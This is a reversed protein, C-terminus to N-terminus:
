TSTTVDVKVDHPIDKAFANWKSKTAVTELLGGNRVGVATGVRPRSGQRPADQHRQRSLLRHASGQRDSHTRITRPGLVEYVTKGNELKIVTNRSPPSASVSTM